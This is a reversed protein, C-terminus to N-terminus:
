LAGSQLALFLCWNNLSKKIDSLITTFLSEMNQSKTFHARRGTAFYLIRGIEPFITANKIKRSTAFHYFAVKKRLFRGVVLIRGNERFFPRM